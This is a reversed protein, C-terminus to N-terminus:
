GNPLVKGIDIAVNEGTAAEFVVRVDLERTGPPPTELRGDGSFNVDIIRRVRPDKRLLQIIGIRVRERVMVPNTEEALANLGDFGFSVNFVDDGLATTLGISLCQSLNDMQQVRAFDLGNAGAVLRIDRGLDLGPVIEECALGWGLVRQRLLDQEKARDIM